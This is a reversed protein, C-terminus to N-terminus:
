RRGSLRAVAAEATRYAQQFPDAETAAASRRSPGRRLNAPILVFLAQVLFFCWFALGLSGTELWAWVAAALGFLLLGLDALAAIPGTHFYLSRVLWVLSLHALLYLPLSLGLLWIGLAAALWLSLTTIRGVREESRRLLYAVYLLGLLAILGRLVFGGAFLDALATFLVGGALSASLAVGVGEFFGPRKM